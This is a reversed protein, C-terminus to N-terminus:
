PSSIVMRRVRNERARIWEPINDPWEIVAVTGTGTLEADLDLARLDREDDIRYADVHILRKVSPHDPVPYSRMLSFTPSQPTKKIGLCKALAQVFTTKGAGLPGEVAIIDGSRLDRALDKAVSDWAGV